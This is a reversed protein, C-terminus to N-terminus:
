GASTGVATTTLGRLVLTVGGIVSLMIGQATPDMPATEMTTEILGLLGIAFGFWMTKSKWFEKM